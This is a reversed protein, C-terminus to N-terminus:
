LLREARRVGRLMDKLFCNMTIFQKATKDETSIKEAYIGQTATIASGVCVEEVTHESM